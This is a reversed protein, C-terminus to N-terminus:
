GRLSKWFADTERKTSKKGAAPKETLRKAWNGGSSKKALASQIRLDRAAATKM